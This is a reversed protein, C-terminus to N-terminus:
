SSVEMTKKLPERKSMQRLRVQILTLFDRSQDTNFRKYLRIYEKVLKVSLKSMHAIRLPRYGEQYALFVTCFDKVYREVSAISHHIRFAIDSLTHGCLFLYVAEAKHSIGPGIDHYNGRTPLRPEGKSHYKKILKKIGSVSMHLLRSLDEQTLLAGQHYAEWCLRCLTLYRLYGLGKHQEIELDKKTLLTLTIRKTQCRCLPKGAPEGIDIASYYIVGDPLRDSRYLYQDKIEEVLKEAAALALNYRQTLTVLLAFEETRLELRERKPRTM